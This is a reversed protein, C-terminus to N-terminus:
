FQDCIVGNSRLCELIAVDRFGSKGIYPYLKRQTSCSRGNNYDEITAEYEQTATNTRVKIKLPESMRNM